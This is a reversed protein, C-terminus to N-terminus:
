NTRSRIQERKYLMVGPKRNIRLSNQTEPAEIRSVALPRACFVIYCIARELHLTPARVVHYLDNSVRKVPICCVHLQISDVKKGNFIQIGLLSGELGSLQMLRVLNWKILNRVIAPRARFKHPDIRVLSNIKISDVDGSFRQIIRLNSQGQIERHVAVRNDLIDQSFVLLWSSSVSRGPHTIVLREVLHAIIRLPRTLQQGLRTIRVAFSKGFESNM